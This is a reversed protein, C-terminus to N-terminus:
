PMRAGERGGRRAALEERHRAMSELVRLAAELARRGDEGSVAAPVDGAVAGLFATLEHRLPEERPAGPEAAFVERRLGPSAGARDLLFTEATQAVLDVSVYRNEAFVRLKRTIEASVRSATVNAICGSAFTLRANAIDVRRTLVDIGVAEVAVLDSDTLWFLLDLDHIMLDLVVDIDLSREPFVGLRHSEVFLPDALAERVRALGPNFRESHGTFLVAGSRAAAAVMADADALCAAIPKEVLCAVGRALLPEAVERHATTPVAIVAAALDAPLDAADTLALAGHKTAHERARVPDADCAAVLRAGPLDALLRAHHRGM